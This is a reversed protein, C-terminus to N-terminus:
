LPNQPRDRRREWWHNLPFYIAPAWLSSLVASALTVQQYYHWIEEFSLFSENEPLRWSYLSFQLATVTEGLVTM